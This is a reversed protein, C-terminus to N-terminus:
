LGRETMFNCNIKEEDFSFGVAGNYDNRLIIIGSKELNEIVKSTPHGYNNKGVQIVAYAPKVADLFEKCTSGSSGHHGIKLIDARLKDTGSYKNIMAKEGTEDIDGTVLIRYEKYFIMFVSCQDNAEQGKKPDIKEPWLTEIRVNESLQISKGATMAKMVKKVKFTEELEQIGKYHDMHEHTVLALDLNWAGNRLLYPKLTNKGTNYNMSGGGDILVDTSGDRIHVCDGQGVDVFVVDAHGVPECTLLHCCGAGLCIALVCSWIRRYQFRLKMIAFTESATFFLLGVVTVAAWVPPRVVEIAGYGGLTSLQNIKTILFAMGEVMPRMLDYRGSILFVGFAAIALPVFYGALFVVPINAAVSILSIYNFQYVQYIILGANVALATALFDPVKDPVHPQLFAISTIALFSMQFGAGFIVYPNDVILIMAVTSMATLMDYRLDLIRAVVSMAIMLSARVVSPSWMSLVGYSFLLVTLGALGAFSKNKGSIRNYLGYLIGVHLGSVALVHATGNNRFDEYVDEELYATDGFLVGIIIGKTDPNLQAEFACRKEFLWREYREKMSISGDELRYSGLTGIAGIGRSKLYKGYDFCYPNRQGAPKELSCIFSIKSHLLEWPERLEEYYGLLVKERLRVKRGDAGIVRAELRYTGDGAPRIGTIEATYNRKSGIFGEMEDASLPIGAMDMFFLVTMAALLVCFLKRRM